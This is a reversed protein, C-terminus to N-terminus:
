SNSTAHPSYRIQQHLLRLNVHALRQHWLDIKNTSYVPGEVITTNEASLQQVECNLKYLKGLSSGTGIVKKNKNRIWCDKHRFSVTNGILPLQQMLVLCIIPLSPFTSVWCVVRKGNHLQTIVKVKGVGIASVTCCDGLGVPEPTEFDKYNHLVSSEFTMYRSAGSDIIWDNSQTDGRLGVTAVFM